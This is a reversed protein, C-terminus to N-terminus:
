KESEWTKFGYKNPERYDPLIKIGAIEDVLANFKKDCFTIEHSMVYRIELFKHLEIKCETIGFEQMLLFLKSIDTKSPISV